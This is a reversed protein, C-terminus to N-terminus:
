LFLPSLERSVKGEDATGGGGAAGMNGGPVKQRGVLWSIACDALMTLLYGASALMFAFPYEKDTLDEFTEAADSLFHMLATGFFVGGAFQTGLVLFAENWRFFYPSIGGAFTGAFVLILCWIKVLVLPRARLNLPAEAGTAADGGADADDDDHGGGHGTVSVSHILVLLLLLLLLFPLVQPSPAPRAM